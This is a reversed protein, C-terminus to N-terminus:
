LFAYRQKEILPAAKKREAEILADRTSEWYRVNSYINATTRADKTIVTPELRNNKIGFVGLIKQTLIGMERMRTEKM